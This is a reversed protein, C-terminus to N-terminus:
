KAEDTWPIEQDFMAINEPKNLRRRQFFVASSKEPNVGLRRDSYWKEITEVARQLKIGLQDPNRSRAIIATDDAYQVLHAGASVPIDTV